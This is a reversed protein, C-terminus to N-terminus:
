PQSYRISNTIKNLIIIKNLIKKTVWAYGYATYYNFKRCPSYNKNDICRKANTWANNTGIFDNIEFGYNFVKDIVENTKVNYAYIPEKFKKCGPNNIGKRIESLHESFGKPKRKGKIAKSIKNGIEKIEDKTKYIHTNNGTGGDTENLLNPNLKRYKRIYIREYADANIISNNTDFSFLLKIGVKLPLLNKLYVFRKNMRREGNLAENLHWYHQKLRYEISKTTRGVYVVQGDIPSILGYINYVM